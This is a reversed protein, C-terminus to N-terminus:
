GEWCIRLVRQRVGTRSKRELIVPSGDVTGNDEWTSLSIGRVYGCQVFIVRLTENVVSKHLPLLQKQVFQTFHDLVSEHFAENLTTEPIGRTSLGVLSCGVSLRFPLLTGQNFSGGFVPGEAQDLPVSWHM